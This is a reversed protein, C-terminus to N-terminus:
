AADEQREEGERRGKLGGRLIDKNARPLNKLGRIAEKGISEGNLALQDIVSSNQDKPFGVVEASRDPVSIREYAEAVDIVAGSRDCVRARKLATAVDIVATPRDCVTTQKCAAAIDVARRSHDLVTAGEDSPVHISLASFNLIGPNKVYVAIDGSNISVKSM